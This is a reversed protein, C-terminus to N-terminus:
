EIFFIFNAGVATMQSVNASLDGPVIEYYLEAGIQPLFKFHLGLIWPAVVSKVDTAACDARLSCSVEKSYNFSLVPGAFIGAYETFKFMLTAPVDIYVYNIEVAGSDTNNITVYRPSILGGTRLGAFENWIPLFGLLGFQYSNRSSISARKIDTDAQNSRVGGLVGFEIQAGVSLSFFLILASLLVKM